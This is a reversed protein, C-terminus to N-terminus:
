SNVGGGGPCFMGGYWKMKMRELYSMGSGAKWAIEAYCTHPGYCMSWLVHVMACPGYCTSWLVHVMACPGYCTSSLITSM